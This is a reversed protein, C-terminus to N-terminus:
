GDYYSQCKGGIMQQKDFLVTNYGKAELQSAATLGAPGAGVICVPNRSGNSHHRGSPSAAPSAAAHEALLAAAAAALVGLSPILM